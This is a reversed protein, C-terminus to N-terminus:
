ANARRLDAVTTGAFFDPNTDTYFRHANDCAFARMQAEDLWGHELHEYLEPLVGAMEPVDWHGIDSSFMASLAAGGPNRRTDFALGTLPDDAECGFVYSRTVQEVIDAPGTVGTRGFDEHVDPTSFQERLVDGIGDHVRLPGAHEAMLEDFRAGDLAMPDYAMIGEPGRKEYHGVLDALLQVAWTVGGELFALRLDPFRHPVGDFFLSKATAENAGAFNGMHNYTFNSVSSRGTWGMSGSHFGASVGHESLWAWVPDYDHASDIGLHDFWNVGNPASRVAFGGLMVTKLGLSRVHDLEAVAEVPDYMPIVGVPTLRDGLGDFVDAMYRNIARCAAQRIEDVRLTPFTLGVSPYCVAFDMGLEDLRRHLLHPANATAFDLTNAMPLGWWPTRPPREIEREEPTMAAWTRSGDFSGYRMLAGLGGEIGDDTLYRSVEPLYEFFHGDADIVPHDLRERVASPTLDSSM